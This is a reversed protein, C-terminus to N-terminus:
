RKAVWKWTGKDHCDDYDDSYEMSVYIAPESTASFTGILAVATPTMPRNSTSQATM